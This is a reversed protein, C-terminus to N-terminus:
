RSLGRRILANAIDIAKKRTLKDMNKMSAPYDTMNWPM